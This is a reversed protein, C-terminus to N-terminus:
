LEKKRYIGLSVAISLALAALAAIPLVVPLANLVSALAGELRDGMFFTLLMPLLIAAMMVLRSKESGYKFLIPLLISLLIVGVCLFLLSGFVAELPEALSLLLQMGISLACGLVAPILGIFYKSLVIDRRTIPMTLAYGDWKAREDYALANPPLIIALMVTLFNLLWPSRNVISLTIYFFSLLAVFVLTKRMCLFDKLILGKM